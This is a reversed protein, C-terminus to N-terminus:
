NVQNPDWILARQGLMVCMETKQTLNWEKRKEGNLGFFFFDEGQPFHEAVERSPRALGAGRAHM